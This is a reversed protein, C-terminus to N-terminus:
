VKVIRNGGDKKQLSTIADEHQMMMKAITAGKKIQSFTATITAAIGEAGPLEITKQSFQLRLRHLPIHADNESAGQLLIAIMGNETLTMVDEERFTLRARAIFEKVSADAKEKGFKEVVYDFGDLAILAFSAYISNSDVSYIIIEAEKDFSLSDALGTKADMRIHDRLNKLIAEREDRSLSSNRVVLEFYPAGDLSLAPLVKMQMGTKDGQKTRFGGEPHKNVVAALDQGGEVFEVYDRITQNLDEMLLDTLKMAKLEDASFGSWQQFAADSEQITIQRAKNDQRVVVSMDGKRRAM